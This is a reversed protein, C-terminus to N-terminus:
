FGSFPVFMHAFVNRSETSLRPILSVQSISSKKSPSQQQQLGQSQKFAVRVKDLANTLFLQNTVLQRDTVAPHRFLRLNFCATEYEHLNRAIGLGSSNLQDAYNRLEKTLKLRLPLGLRYSKLENWTYNQFLPLCNARISAIKAKCQEAAEEFSVLLRPEISKRCDRVERIAGVFKRASNRAERQLLKRALDVNIVSSDDEALLQFQNQYGTAVELWDLNPQQFKAKLAALAASWDSRISDLQSLQERIELHAGGRLRNVRFGWWPSKRPEPLEDLSSAVIRLLTLNHEFQPDVM